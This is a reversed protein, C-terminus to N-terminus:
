KRKCYPTCNAPDSPPDTTCVFTVLEGKGGTKSQKSEASNFSRSDSSALNDSGYRSIRRRGGSDTSRASSESGSVTSDRDTSDDNDEDSRASNNHSLNLDMAGEMRSSRSFSHNIPKLKM